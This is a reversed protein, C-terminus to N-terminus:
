HEGWKVHINNSPKANNWVFGYGRLSIIGEIPFLHCPIMWECVKLTSHPPGCELSPRWLVHGHDPCWGFIKFNMPAYSNDSFGFASTGCSHERSHHTGYWYRLMARPNQVKYLVMDVSPGAVLGLCYSDKIHM